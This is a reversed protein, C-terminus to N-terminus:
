SGCRQRGMTACAFLCAVLLDDSRVLCRKTGVQRCPFSRVFTRTPVGVSRTIQFRDAAADFYLYRSDIAQLAYLVDRLLVEEPVDFSTPGSFPSSRTPSVRAANTATAKSKATPLPAAPAAAIGVAVKFSSELADLDTRPPRKPQPPAFREPLVPPADSTRPGLAEAAYTTDLQRSSLETHAAPPPEQALSQPPVSDMLGYLLLLAESYCRIACLSVLWLCDHPQTFVLM